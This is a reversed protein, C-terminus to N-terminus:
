DGMDAEEWLPLRLTFHAGGGPGEAYRAEGGCQRAVAAVYALGLGSGRAGSSLRTYGFRAFPDAKRAPPLGPGEDCVSALVHDGDRAVACRIASGQPSAQVANSLLNVFARVLAAADGLAWLDERQAAQRDIAIGISNAQPWVADIAQAMADAIDVPECEATQNELRALHVFNDALRLTTEAYRRVRQHMERTREPLGRGSDGELLAIISAQPSRMDHSLFQLMEQREVASKQMLAIIQHLRETGEAIRDGGSSDRAPPVAPSQALLADIETDIFQMVATLRRWNWLPYVIAPGLMAAVPPIWLGTLALALVSGVFLAIIVAVTLLLSQTPTLRWFALMLLWLPVLACAAVWNPDMPVIFRDALLSNLLNAQVEAGSMLDRSGPVLYLDGLGTATAGIIVTKGRLLASPAGGRWVQSFSLAQFTGTKHFPVTVAPWTDGTRLYAPSPAGRMERYALETLHPLWRGGEFAKIEIRRARGDNDMELNVIGLGTAARAITTNPKLIKYPAGNPGPIDFLIPLYVPPTGAIAKAVTADSATPEIFLVDYLITRVGAAKLRSVLEAHRERPWPWRGIQALSDNDIGIILIQPDVPAARMPAAFDYILHEARDFMEAKVGLFLAISGALGILFWEFWLRALKM